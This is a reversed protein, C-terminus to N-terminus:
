SFEQKEETPAIIYDSKRHMEQMEYKKSNKLYKRIVPSFLKPDQKDESPPACFASVIAAVVFMIVAGMVTYYLFTVRFLVFPLPKQEQTVIAEALTVNFPCGEISTPLKPYVLSGDALSKQAGFVVCSMFVLSVISGVLAGKPEGRPYFMGYTFLGFTAGSAVGNTSMALQLIGGIKDVLFVMVVCVAGIIIVIIKIINSAVKDSVKVNLCPRVFDEFLTAGLSNLCSSMTSLAASFIGAVFLGPLGPIAEAIDMVYYALLQDIRPIILALIRMIYCINKPLVSINKQAKRYTPLSLFRQVMAQNVSLMGLWGSLGGIVVSLVNMRDFVSTSSRPSNDYNSFGGIHVLGLIIVVVSALVMTVGQLFDTWVVAKIGGLMTYFICIISIIPTIFHLNVGTVQSLALAPVYMVIPVYLLTGVTGLVSAMIRLKRNFRKELYEFVSTVQLEYFVPLYLYNDLIAVFPAAFVGVWYLPGYTYIEPPDGMVTIGSVLSAVLSVAVPLTSMSKGGLLYEDPTDEKKGWFGFYIGILTSLVLMGIFFSYDLWGFLLMNVGGLVEATENLM